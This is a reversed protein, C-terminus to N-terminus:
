MYFYCLKHNFKLTLMIWIYYLIYYIETLLYLLIVVNCLACCVRVIRDIIPCEDERKTVFRIPLTSRLISFKQRVNGIVREVHIRVNAIKRTEHVDM